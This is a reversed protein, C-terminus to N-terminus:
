QKTNKIISVIYPSFITLCLGITALHGFTFIRHNHAGTVTGYRSSSVVNDILARITHVRSTDLTQLSKTITGASIKFAPARKQTFPSIPMSSSNVGALTVIRRLGPTMAAVNLAMSAGASEGVLSVVYGAKQAAAITDKVRAVKQDYGETGNWRMPVLQTKVGFIRWFWLAFLRGRDYHDGLGPIYIIYHKM